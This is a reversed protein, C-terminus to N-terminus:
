LDESGDSVFCKIVDESFYPEQSVRFMYDVKLFDMAFSHLVPVINERDAKILDTVTEEIYNGDQVAISNILTFYESFFVL